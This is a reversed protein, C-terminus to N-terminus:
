TQAAAPRRARRRGLAPIGLSLVAALSLGTVILGWGLASLFPVEAGVSIDADVQPSADDNMVVISWDGDEVDWTLTQTGSGHASAAWFRQDAPAAPREGPKTRYDAEFPDFSVDTVVTHAAGALYRSVERTPAIGVFVPRESDVQVKSRGALGDLGDFDLDLKDSALAYTSTTFRHTATTFFGQDDKKGNGWLTVGGLVLLVLATLGAIISATRM